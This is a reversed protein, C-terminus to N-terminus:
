YTTYLKRDRTRLNQIEGKSIFSFFLQIKNEGVEELSVQFEPM